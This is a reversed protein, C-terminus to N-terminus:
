PDDGQRFLPPPEETGRREAGRPEGRGGGKGREREQEPPKRATTPKAEERKTEKAEGGECFHAERMVFYSRRQPRNPNTLARDRM